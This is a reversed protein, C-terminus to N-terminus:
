MYNRGTFFPSISVFKSCKVNSFDGNEIPFLFDENM